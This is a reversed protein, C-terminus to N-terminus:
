RSADVLWPLVTSDALVPCAHERAHLLSQQLQFPIRYGPLLTHATLM